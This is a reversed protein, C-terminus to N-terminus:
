PSGRCATGGPSIIRRAVLRGFHVALANVTSNMGSGLPQWRDGDWRAVRDMSVGASNRFAGGAILDGNYVTLAYVENNFGGGLAQWSVGDWVAVRNVFVSGAITFHGGAVLVEPQPGPGDPDWLTWAYVYSSLGPIGNGPQWREPCQAAVPVVVLGSLIMGVAWLATRSQKRM